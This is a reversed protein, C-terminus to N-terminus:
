HCSLNLMPQGVGLLFGACIGGCPGWLGGGCAGHCRHSGFRHGGRWHPAACRALFPGSFASIQPLWPREPPAGSGIAEKRM